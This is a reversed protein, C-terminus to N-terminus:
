LGEREIVNKAKLACRVVHGDTHRFCEKHCEVQGQLKRTYKALIHLLARRKSDLPNPPLDVSREGLISDILADREVGYHTRIDRRAALTVLETQNCGELTRRDM